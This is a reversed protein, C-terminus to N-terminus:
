CRAACTQYGSWCSRLWGGRRNQRKLSLAIASYRSKIQSKLWPAAVWLYLAGGVLAFVAAAKKGFIDVTQLAVQCFNWLSNLHDLGDHRFQAERDPQQDGFQAQVGADIYVQQTSM